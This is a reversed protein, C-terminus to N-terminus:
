REARGVCVRPGNIRDCHPTPALQRHLLSSHLITSYLLGTTFVEEFVHADYCVGDVIKARGRAKMLLLTSYKPPLYFAM